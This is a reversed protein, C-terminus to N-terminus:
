RGGAARRPSCPWGASPPPWWAATAPPAPPTNTPGANWPTTWPAPSRSCCRARPPPWTRRRPSCTTGGPWTPASTPSCRRASAPTWPPSCRPRSSSGAPGARCPTPRSARPRARGGPRRGRPPPRFAPLVRGPGAGPPPARDRRDRRCRGAPRRRGARHRRGGPRRPAAGAASYHGLAALVPLGAAASAALLALAAVACGALIVAATTLLWTAQRPELRGALPRAALAALAPILLPLYVLLRVPKSRTGPRSAPWCPASCGRTGAPCARPSVPRAGRGPRRRGGAGAADARRGGRGRRRAHLRLRARGARTGATGQRAAPVRHDGGHQLVTGAAARAALRQRVQGATLPTGAARLVALVEAELAGAPRRPAGPGGGDPPPRGDPGDGRM